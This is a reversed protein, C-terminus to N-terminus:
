NTPTIRDQQQESLSKLKNRFTEYINLDMAQKELHFLDSVINCKDIAIELREVAKRDLAPIPQPTTYRNIYEAIDDKGYNITKKGEPIYPLFLEPRLKKLKDYYQQQLGLRKIEDVLPMLEEDTKADDIKIELDDIAKRDLTPIPQPEPQLPGSPVYVPVFGNSGLQPNNDKHFKEAMQKLFGLTVQIAEPLPKGETDELEIEFGIDENLFPAYPFKKSYKVIM